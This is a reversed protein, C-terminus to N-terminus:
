RIEPNRPPRSRLPPDHRLRAPMARHLARHAAEIETILLRAPVAEDLAVSKELSHIIDVLLRHAERAGEEVERDAGRGQRVAFALYEPPLLEPPSRLLKQQSRALDLLEELIIQTPADARPAPTPASPKHESEAPVSELASQLHPWWVDFSRKLQVEDLREQESQQSNISTLLKLVDNKENVTSQFQLLPGQVESRKMRFLFPSVFSKDMAKSLAGAEFNIWPANVNSKTICLIGFTSEQLEKAIDTSWRTGKDIDESSVYPKASQMVMPLWDRLQCAVKHSTEGSWSLFVKM